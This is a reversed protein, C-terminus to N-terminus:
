DKILLEEYKIGSLSLNNKLNLNPNVIVNKKSIEMIPKDDIHDTLFIDVDSLEKKKLFKLLNRLKVAKSNEIFDDFNQGSYDTAICYDFDCRKAIIQSYCEPAATALIHIDYNSHNIIELNRKFQMIKNVFIENDIKKSDISKLILYKFKKHSILRFLRLITFVSLQFCLVGKYKSFSSRLLYKTFHHFTNISFLTGDLDSVLIKNKM